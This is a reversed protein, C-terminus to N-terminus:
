ARGNVPLLLVQAIAEDEKSALLADLLMLAVKILFRRCYFAHNVVKHNRVLVLLRSLLVSAFVELNAIVDVGARILYLVQANAVAHEHPLRM